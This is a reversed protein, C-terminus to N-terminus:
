YIYIVCGVTDEELEFFSPGCWLHNPLHTQMYSLECTLERSLCVCRQWRSAKKVAKAGIAEGDIQFFTNKCSRRKPFGQVYSKPLPLAGVALLAVSISFQGGGLSMLCSCCKRPITFKYRWKKGLQACTKFGKFSRRFPPALVNSLVAEACSANWFALHRRAAATGRWCGAGLASSEKAV